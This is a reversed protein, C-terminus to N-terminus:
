RLNIKAYRDSLEMDSHPESPSIEKLEPVLPFDKKLHDIKM